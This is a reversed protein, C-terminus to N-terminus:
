GGGRKQSGTLRLVVIGVNVRGLAKRIHISVTETRRGALAMDKARPRTFQYRSYAFETNSCHEWTLCPSARALCIAYPMTAVRLSSFSCFTQLSTLVTM